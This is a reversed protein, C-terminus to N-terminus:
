CGTETRIIKEKVEEDYDNENQLLWAAWVYIVYNNYLAEV